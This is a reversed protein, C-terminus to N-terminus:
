VAEGDNIVNLRAFEGFLDVAWFNYVRAADHPNDFYGLHAQSDGVQIYAKYKDYGQVKNVGKYGVKNIIPTKRNRSNGKHTTIRLNSKRNDYVNGNIHDVLDGEKASMIMRHILIHKRRGNVQKRTRVYGRPTIEWKFKSLWDFDEDDIVVDTGKSTKINAVVSV